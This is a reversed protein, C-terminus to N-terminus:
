MTKLQKDLQQADLLPSTTQLSHCTRGAQDSAWLEHDGGCVGRDQDPLTEKQENIM